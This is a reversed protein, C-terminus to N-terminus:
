TLWDLTAAADDVLAGGEALSSAASSNRSPLVTSLERALLARGLDEDTSLVHEVLLLEAFTSPVEALAFGQKLSNDMQAQAALGNHTGHGLEHALMLLDRLQGTWNVSVFGPM